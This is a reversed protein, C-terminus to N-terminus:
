DRTRIRTIVSMGARLKGVLPQGGDLEIKLPIRQTVKTFNGTANDAPLASFTAGSAAALRSVKGRLREGPFSDVEIEVPQGPAVRAMQTEKYNAVVYPQTRAVFNVVATGPNLLSGQQVLRQGVTGDAPAVIRTYSLNIRATELTARASAVDAVRQAREGRLVNLKRAQLDVAAHAGVQTARIAAANARASDAEQATVAGSAELSSFREDDATALTLKSGTGVVTAKAEAIMAQQAEVENDLNALIAEAKALGAEAHLVAAKAERDDLQVLLQGARVSQFDTFAVTRVYASVKADLVATDNQVTANDTTQVTRDAEFSNWNVSVAVIALIVVLIICWPVIRVWRREVSADERQDSATNAPGDTM